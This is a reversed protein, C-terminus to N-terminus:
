GGPPPPTTAKFSPRTTLRIFYDKVVEHRDLLAAGEPLRTAYFLVPALYVDALTYAKGAIYGDTGISQELVDFHRSMKETATDVRDRDVAGDKARLYALAYDSVM